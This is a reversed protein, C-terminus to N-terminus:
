EFARWNQALNKTLIFFLHQFCPQKLILMICFGTSIVFHLIYVVTALNRNNNGKWWNIKQLISSIFM